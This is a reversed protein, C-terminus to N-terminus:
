YALRNTYIFDLPKMSVDTWSLLTQDLGLDKLGSFLTPAQDGQPIPMLLERFRNGSRRCMTLSKRLLARDDVASM